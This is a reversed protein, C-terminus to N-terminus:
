VRGVKTKQLGMTQGLVAATDKKETIRPEGEDKKSGAQLDPAGTATPNRDYKADTCDRSDNFHKEITSHTGHKSVTKVSIWLM